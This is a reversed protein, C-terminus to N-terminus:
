IYNHEKMYISFIIFTNHLIEAVLGLEVFKVQNLRQILIIM